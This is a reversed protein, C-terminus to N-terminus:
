LRLLSIIIIIGRFPDHIDYREPSELLDAHVDRSEFVTLADDHHVAPKREGGGFHEAHIEHNRINREEPLVPVAHLPEKDRVTM